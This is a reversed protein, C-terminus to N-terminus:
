YRITTLSYLNKGAMSVKVDSVTLENTTEGDIPEDNYYWQYTINDYPSPATAVSFMIKGNEDVNSTTSLVVSYSPPNVVNVQITTSQVVPNSYTLLPYEIHQSKCSYTGDYSDTINTIKLNQTQSGTIHENDVLDVGDLM